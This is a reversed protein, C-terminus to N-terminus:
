LKLIGYFHWLLGKLNIALIVVIPFGLSLIRPRSPPLFFLFVIGEYSRMRATLRALKERWAWHQGNRAVQRAMREFIFLMWSGANVDRAGPPCDTQMPIDIDHPEEFASLSFFLLLLLIFRPPFLSFFLTSIQDRPLDSFISGELLCAPRKADRPSQKPAVTFYPM